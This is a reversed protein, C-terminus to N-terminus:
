AGAVVFPVVMVGSNTSGRPDNCDARTNLKHLGPTMSAVPINLPAAGFPGPGSTLTTGPIGAHVDADYRNEHGSVPLDAATGHWVQAVTPAWAPTTIPGDPLPVSRVSSECYAAGTYWGKGRLYAQRTVDARSKGNNIYTQWNGSAIMRNGDPEDVYFRFRIEQLGSNYFSSQPLDYHVWKECTGEPCTWGPYNFKKITTEQSTGKLVISLGPYQTNTRAPNDHLILRIDLPITAGQMSEREPICAGVHAHGFDTGAKGPTTLWWSQFDVFQRTENYSSAPQRAPAGICSQPGPHASASAPAVAALALLFLLARRM